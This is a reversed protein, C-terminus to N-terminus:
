RPRPIVPPAAPPQSTATPEENVVAPVMTRIRSSMQSVIREGIMQGRAHESFSQQKRAIEQAAKEDVVSKVPEHQWGTEDRLRTFFDTQSPGCSIKLNHLGHKAMEVLYSKTEDIAAGVKLSTDRLAPNRLSESQVLMAAIELEELAASITVVRESPGPPPNFSQGHCASKVTAFFMPAPLLAMAYDPREVFMSYVRDAARMSLSSAELLDSLRGYGQEVAKVPSSLLRESHHKCFSTQAANLVNEHIGTGYLSFAVTLGFDFIGTNFTKSRRGASRMLENFSPMISSIEALDPLGTAHTKKFGDVIDSKGQPLDLARLRHGTKLAASNLAMQALSVLRHGSQNFEHRFKASVASLRDEKATHPNVVLKRFKDFLGIGEEIADLSGTWGKIGAKATGVAMESFQTLSKDLEESSKALDRDLMAAAKDADMNATETYFREAFEASTEKKGLGRARRWQESDNRVAQQQDKVRAYMSRQKLYEALNEGMDKRFADFGYTGPLEQM